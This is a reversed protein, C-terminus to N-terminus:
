PAPRTGEGAPAGARGGAARGGGASDGYPAAVHPHANPHEGLTNRVSADATAVDRPYTRLALLVCLGAAVIVVLFLLFTDSLGQSGPGSATTAGFGIRGGFAHDSVYGFTVPAAAEMAERLATRVGESRGWLHPHIIDLRAADQPPNAAGLFVAGITLLPIAIWLETVLFSPAMFIPLIFLVAMPVVVRANIMGRSMLRDALRGGLFVGALAGAGVVLVLTSAVSKSIGFHNQAWLIAFTRAGAFFFYGLSSAVIIIVDTRVRLVYRVAWWLSKQGPDETLVQEPYPEIHQREVAERAIGERSEELAAQEEAAQQAAPHDAVDAAEPIEQQGEHLRSQGGRAPEPLRMMLVALVASPIALWAFAYRWSLHGAIYGSIAFGIGTGLLEGALIYGYMRAREKAPFFDGTLSAVTPGATATVGGLAIRTLILWLYSQSAASAVMALAWLVISLGLLRTRRLRDTLSGVPITFIAGMLTSATVLLGIDTNSLHFARELNSATASVTGVDAGSLGTVGALIAIVRFRAPGGVQEILRHAHHRAWSRTSGVPHSLSPPTSM